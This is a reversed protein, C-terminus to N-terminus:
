DYRKKCDKIYGSGKKDYFRIRKKAELGQATFDKFKKKKAEKHAKAARGLLEDKLNPEKYGENTHAFAKKMASLKLHPPLSSEAEKRKKERKKKVADGLKSHEIEPKWDENHEM